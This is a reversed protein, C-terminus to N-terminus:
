CDVNLKEGCNPCYNFRVKIRRTVIKNEVKNIYSRLNRSRSNNINIRTPRTRHTPNDLYHKAGGLPSKITYDCSKFKCKTPYSPKAM